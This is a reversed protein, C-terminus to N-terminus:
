PRPAKQQLERLKRVIARAKDENWTQEGHFHGSLTSLSGPFGDGALDKLQAGLQKRWANLLRGITRNMEVCEQQCRRKLEARRRLLQKVSQEVAEATCEADTNMTHSPNIRSLGAGPVGAHLM